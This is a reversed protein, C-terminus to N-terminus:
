TTEGQQKPFITVDSPCFRQWASATAETCPALRGAGSTQCVAHRGHGGGERRYTDGIYSLSYGVLPTQGRDAQPDISALPVKGDSVAVPERLCGVQKRILRTERGMGRARTCLITYCMQALFALPISLLFYILIYMPFIGRKRSFLLFKKNWINGVSFM